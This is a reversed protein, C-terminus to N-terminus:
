PLEAVRAAVLRGLDGQEARGLGVSNRDEVRVENDAASAAKLLGDGRRKRRSRRVHRRRHKRRLAGGGGGSRVM